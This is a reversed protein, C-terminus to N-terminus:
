SYSAAPATLTPGHHARGFTRLSGSFTQARRLHRRAAVHWPSPLSQRIRPQRPRLRNVPQSVGVRCDRRERANPPPHRWVRIALQRGRRATVQGSKCSRMVAAPLARIEGRYDITNAHRNIALGQELAQGLGLILDFKAGEVNRTLALDYRLQLAISEIGDSGARQQNFELLRLGSVDGRAVPQSSLDFGSRPSLSSSSHRPFAGRRRCAAAAVLSADHILL